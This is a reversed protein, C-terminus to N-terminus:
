LSPQFDLLVLEPLPVERRRAVEPEADALVNIQADLIVRSDADVPHVEVAAHRPRSLSHSLPPSRDRPNSGAVSDRLWLSDLPELVPELPNHPLNQIM